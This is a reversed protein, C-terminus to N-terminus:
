EFNKPNIILDFKDLSEKSYLYDILLERANIRSDIFAHEELKSFFYLCTQILMMNIGDSSLPSYKEVISNLNPDNSEQQILSTIDDKYIQSIQEMIYKKIKELISDIM